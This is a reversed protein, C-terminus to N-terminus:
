NRLILNKECCCMLNVSNHNLKLYRDIQTRSRFLESKDYFLNLSGKLKQFRESESSMLTQEYKM